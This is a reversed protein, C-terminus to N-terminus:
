IINMMFDELYVNNNFEKQKYKDIWENIQIKVSENGKRYSIRAFIGIKLYINILNTSEIEINTDNISDILASIIVFAQEYDKCDIYKTIERVNENVLIESLENNIVISNYLKNYYYEKSNKPLHSFFKEKIKDELYYISEENEVFEIIFNKLENDSISKLLDM